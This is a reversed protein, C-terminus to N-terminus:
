LGNTSRRTDSSFFLMVSRSALGDVVGDFATFPFFRFRLLSPVKVVCSAPGEFTCFSFGAPSERLFEPWLGFDGIRTSSLSSSTSITLVESISSASAPSGRLDDWRMLEKDQSTHLPDPRSSGLTHWILGPFGCLGVYQCRSCFRRPKSLGSHLYSALFIELVRSLSPSASQRYTWTLIEGQLLCNLWTKFIISAVDLWVSQRLRRVANKLLLLQPLHKLLM